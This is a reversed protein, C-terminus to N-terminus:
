ACSSRAEEPTFKIANSLLNDIVQGIRHPDAISKPIQDLNAALTM